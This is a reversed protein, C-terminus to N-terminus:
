TTAPDGPVVEVKFSNVIVDSTAGGQLTFKFAITSAYNVSGDSNSSLFPTTTFAADTVTRRTSMRASSTGNRAIISEIRWSGGNVASSFTSYATGNFYIKIAKTNGNAAFSGEATIRLWYGNQLFTNAPITRNYADTESTGGCGLAGNGSFLVRVAQLLADRLQANLLAATVLESDSWTRPPDPWSM